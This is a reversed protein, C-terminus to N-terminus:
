LTPTERKVIGPPTQLTNILPELFERNLAAGARIRKWKHYGLPKCM